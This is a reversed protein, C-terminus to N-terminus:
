LACDPSASCDSDACDILGDCDNDRSDNCTVETAEEPAVPTGGICRAGSCIGGTRCQNTCTGPPNVRPEINCRGTTANCEDGIALRYCDNVAINALSACTDDSTTPTSDSDIAECVQLATNCVGLVCIGADDGSCDVAGPTCVGSGDCQDGQTCSNGDECNTGQPSPVPQCGLEETCTSGSCQEELFECSRATGGSCTGSSCEEGTTCFLGDECPAGESTGPDACDFTGPRFLALTANGISPLDHCGALITTGVYDTVEGYVLVRGEGTVDEVILPPPTEAVNFVVDAFREFDRVTFPETKKSVLQACTLQEQLPSLVWIRVSSTNQQSRGQSPYALSVEFSQTPAGDEGCTALLLSLASVLLIRTKM